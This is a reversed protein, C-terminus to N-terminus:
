DVRLRCIATEEQGPELWRLGQGNHIADPLGLWPEVCYFDSDDRESWTTVAHWASSGPVDLDIELTRDPMALTVPRGTRIDM